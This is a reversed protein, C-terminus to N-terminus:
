TRLDETRPDEPRFRSSSCEQYIAFIEKATDFLTRQLRADLGESSRLNQVREVISLSGQEREALALELARQISSAAAPECVFYGALPAESLYELPGSVVAAGCALAELAPFGFGEGLSPVCVVRASLYLYLLEERSIWPVFTMSAGAATLLGLSSQVADDLPRCVLPVHPFKSTVSALAECTRTLNKRLDTSAFFLLSDRPVGLRSLMDNARREVEVAPLGRIVDLLQPDLGLPVTFLRDSPVHYLRRIDAAAARGDTLVAHAKSFQRRFMLRYFAPVWGAASGDVGHGQFLDHVTVVQRRSSLVPSINALSHLIEVSDRSSLLPVTLQDLLVNMKRSKVSPLYRAVLRVQGRRFYESAPRCLGGRRAGEGAPLGATDATGTVVARVSSSEIARLVEADLTVPDGYLVVEDRSAAREELLQLLARVLGRAFVGIGGGQGAHRGLYIGIRLGAGVGRLHHNM